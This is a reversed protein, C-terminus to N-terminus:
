PSVTHHIGVIELAAGVMRATAARVPRGAVADAIEVTARVVVQPATRGARGSGVSLRLLAAHMLALLARSQGPTPATTVVVRLQLEGAGM